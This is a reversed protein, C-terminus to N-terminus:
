RVSTSPLDILPPIPLISIWFAGPLIGGIDAHHGRSATFFVIQHTEEDFVPTIITIDPLHSPFLIRTDTEKARSM